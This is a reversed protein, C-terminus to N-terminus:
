AGAEQRVVLVSCPAHNTVRSAVSGLAYGVLGPRRAHIVILEAGLDAATDIITGSVPGYAVHTEIGIGCDGLQAVAKALRKAAQDKMQSIIAEPNTATPLYVDPVVALFHLRGGICRAQALAIRLIDSHDHGERTDLTVLIPAGAAREQPEITM